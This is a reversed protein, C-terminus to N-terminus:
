DCFLPSKNENDNMTNWQKISKRTSELIQLPHRKDNFRIYREENSRYTILGQLLAHSLKNSKANNSSAFYVLSVDGLNKLKCVNLWMNVVNIISQHNNLNLFWSIEVIDSVTWDKVSSLVFDPLDCSDFQFIITAVDKGFIEQLNQFRNSRQNFFEVCITDIMKWLHYINKIFCKDRGYGFLSALCKRIQIIKNNRYAELLDLHCFDIDFISSNNHLINVVIFGIICALPTLTSILNLINKRLSITNVDELNKKAENVKIEEDKEIAKEKLDGFSMTGFTCGIMNYGELTGNNFIFRSAQENLKRRKNLPQM